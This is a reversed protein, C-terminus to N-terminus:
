DMEERVKKIDIAKNNNKFIIQGLYGSVPKKEFEVWGQMPALSVAAGEYWWFMM